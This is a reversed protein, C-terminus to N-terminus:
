ITCQKVIKRFEKLEKEAENRKSEIYKKAEGLLKARGGNEGIVTRPNWQGKLSVNCTRCSLALNAMTDRGGDSQPVIHDINWEKYNELSKLLDKGCYECRFKARIGIKVADTGWKGTSELERLLRKQDYSTEM